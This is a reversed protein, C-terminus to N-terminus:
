IFMRGSVEVRLASLSPLSIEAVAGWEVPSHPTNEGAIGQLAQSTFAGGSGEGHGGNGGRTGGEGNSRRGGMSSGDGASTSGAHGMNAGNAGIAGNVGIAGNAGIAEGNTGGMGGM